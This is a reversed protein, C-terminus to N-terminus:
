AFSFIFTGWSRNSLTTRRFRRFMPGLCERRDTPIPPNQASEVGGSSVGTEKEIQHVLSLWERHRDLIAHTQPPGEPATHGVIIGIERIGADRIAEIVRFLM